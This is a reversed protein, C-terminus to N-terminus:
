MPARGLHNQRHMQPELLSQGELTSFGVLARPSPLPGPRQQRGPQREEPVLASNWPRM